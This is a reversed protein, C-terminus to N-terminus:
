QKKINRYNEQKDEGEDPIVTRKKKQKTKTEIVTETNKELGPTSIPNEERKGGLSTEGWGRIKDLILLPLGGM